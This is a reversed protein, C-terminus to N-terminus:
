FKVSCLIWDSKLGVAINKPTLFIQRKIKTILSQLGTEIEHIWENVVTKQSLSACLLPLSYSAFLINQAIRERGHIQILSASHEHIYTHGRLMWEILLLMCCCDRKYVKGWIGTSEKMNYKKGYISSNFQNHEFPPM